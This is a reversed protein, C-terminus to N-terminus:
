LFISSCSVAVFIFGSCPENSTASKQAKALNICPQLHVCKSPIKPTEEASVDRSFSHITTATLWPLTAPTSRELLAQYTPLSHECHSSPIHQAIQLRGTSNHHTQHIYLSSGLPRKPTHFLGAEGLALLAQGSEQAGHQTCSQQSQTGPVGSGRQASM